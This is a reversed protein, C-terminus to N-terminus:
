GQREVPDYGGEHFPHCKLIRRFGMYIGKLIGFKEIAEFAYQSCSPTFRCRSPYFKFTFQYARILFLAFFKM